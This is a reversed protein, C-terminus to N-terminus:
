HHYPLRKSYRVKHLFDQPILINVIITHQNSAKDKKTTQILWLNSHSASPLPLENQVPINIPTTRRNAPNGQYNILNIIRNRQNSDM